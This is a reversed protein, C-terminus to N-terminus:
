RLLTALEVQRIQALQILAEAREADESEVREVYALLESHEAETLEGMENKQRLEDLRMQEDPPLRRQIIQLLDSEESKSPAPSVVRSIKLCLSELFEVAEDLRETPLKEVLEIARIRIEISTKM